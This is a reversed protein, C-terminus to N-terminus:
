LYGCKKGSIMGLRSTFPTVDFVFLILFRELSNSVMTRNEQLNCQNRGTKTNTELFNNNQLLTQFVPTICTVLYVVPEPIINIYINLSYQIKQTINPILRTNILGQKKTANTYLQINASIKVEKANIEFLKPLNNPEFRPKYM